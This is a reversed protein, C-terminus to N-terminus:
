ASFLNGFNLSVGPAISKTEFFVGLVESGVETTLCHWTQLGVLSGLPRWLRCPNEAYIHRYRAQEALPLLTLFAIIRLSTHLSLMAGEWDNFAIMSLASLWDSRWGRSM